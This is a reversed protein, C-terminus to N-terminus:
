WDPESESARENARFFIVSANTMKGLFWFTYVGGDQRDEQESLSQLAGHSNCLLDTVLDVM